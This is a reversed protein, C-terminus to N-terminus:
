GDGYKNDLHKKYDEVSVDPPLTGSLRRTIPADKLSSEVAPIQRLYASILDTLTTNNERAFRKANELLLRSVRVTLKTEM